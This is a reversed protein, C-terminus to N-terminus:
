FSFLPPGPPVAGQCKLFCCDVRIWSDARVEIVGPLIKWRGLTAGAKASTGGVLKGVVVDALRVIEEGITFVVCRCDSGLDVIVVWGVIV